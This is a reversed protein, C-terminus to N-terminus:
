GPQHLVDIEQRAAALGEVERAPRPPVRQEQGGRPERDPRHIPIGSLNLEEGVDGSPEPNGNLRLDEVQLLLSDVQTVFGVIDDESELVKVPGEERRKM